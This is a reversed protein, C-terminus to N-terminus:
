AERSIMMEFYGRPITVAEGEIWARVNNARVSEGNALGEMEREFDCVGEEEEERVLM